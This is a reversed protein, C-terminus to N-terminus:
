AVAKVPDAQRARLETVLEQIEVALMPRREAIRLGSIVTSHDRKGCYFGIEPTSLNLVDRLARYAAFRARTPKFRKSKARIAAVSVGFRRGVAALVESVERPIKLGDCHPCYQCSM